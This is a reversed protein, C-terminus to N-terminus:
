RALRRADDSWLLSFHPNLALARRAFAQAADRRGLCNEIWARHFLKLADQTGLRLARKSWPLADGCREDRALTWALVDDGDISPRDARARRALGVSARGHDADFLATELDTKVGNARLLQEIAGITAYQRRALGTKGTARYLDGLQAVFQPLPIEDVARRELAIAREFRGRAAEVQALTDLAYVYGPFSALAARYEHAAAGLRGRSWYLKGLQVHTWATAEPQGIAADLALKMAETAGRSDGLLERAHAVRAYSALSPKLSSMTDFAAFADRYRGLELLADGIVGYNRATSPSLKHARRGLALAERFSHRSLALSGLGSTALLDQVDLALARRLVADAKAYYTPDGTERARQQYALGLLDLSRGDQPSVRLRSQLDDVLQVTNGPSFGTQLADGAVAAPAAAPEARSSDRFVGGFLLAAAAAFVTAAALTIRARTM